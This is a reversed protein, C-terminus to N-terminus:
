RARVSGDYRPATYQPDYGEDNYSRSSTRNTPPAYANTSPTHSHPHSQHPASHGYGNTGNSSPSMGRGTYAQSHELHHQFNQQYASYLDAVDHIILLNEANNNEANSTFNFSGTILTHGDILMVKNHAIAHEADIHTEIGAHAVFDASSYQETRQSKDLVCVIKVGRNHANVLSKAIPQSTFSYAQVLVIQRAKDIEEVVAETCGGRPSFYCRIEGGDNRQSVSLTPLRASSWPTSSEPACGVMGLAVVTLKWFRRNWLM